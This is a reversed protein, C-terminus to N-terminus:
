NYFSAHKLIDPFQLTFDLLPNWFMELLNDSLNYFEKVRRQEINYWLDVYFGAKSLFSIGYLSTYLLRASCGREM